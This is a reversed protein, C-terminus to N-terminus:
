LARLDAIWKAATERREFWYEELLPAIEGDVVSLYWAEDPSVNDPPCFFSHGVCFGRGLNKHDAEIKANLSTM